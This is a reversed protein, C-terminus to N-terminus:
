IFHHRLGKLAFTLISMKKLKNSVNFLYNKSNKVKGNKKEYEPASLFQSM